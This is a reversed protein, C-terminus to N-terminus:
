TRVFRFRFSRSPTSLPCRSSGPLLRRTLTPHACAEMGVMRRARVEASVGGSAGAAAHGGSEIFRALSGTWSPRRRALACLGGLM